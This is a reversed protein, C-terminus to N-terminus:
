LFHDQNMLIYDLFLVRFTYFITQLGDPLKQSLLITRIKPQHYYLFPQINSIHGSGSTAYRVHGISYDGVLRDLQKQDFVEKVLGYNRHGVLRKGDAAVIGCGEQGRHQMAHLAYYTVEAAHKVKFCGFVGCEEHIESSM